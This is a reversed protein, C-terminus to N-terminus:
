AGRLVAVEQDGLFWGSMHRKWRWIVRGWIRRRRIQINSFGLSTNLLVHDCVGRTTKRVRHFFFYIYTCYLHFQRTFRRLRRSEKVWFVDASSHYRFVFNTQQSCWLLVLARHQQSSITTIHLMPMRTGPRDEHTTSQGLSHTVHRHM